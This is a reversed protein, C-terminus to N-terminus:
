VARELGLDLKVSTVLCTLFPVNLCCYGYIDPESCLKGAESPLHSSAKSWYSDPLLSIWQVVVM